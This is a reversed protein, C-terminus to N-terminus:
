HLSQQVVGRAKPLEERFRSTQRVPIDSSLEVVSMGCSSVSTASHGMASMVDTV